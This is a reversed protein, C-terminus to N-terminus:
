LMRAARLRKDLVDSVAVIASHNLPIKDPKTEQTSYESDSQKGIGSGARLSRRRRSRVVIPVAVDILHCDQLWKV